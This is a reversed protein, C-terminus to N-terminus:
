PNIRGKNRIQHLPLWFSFTTEEPNSHLLEIDGGYRRIITRVILLGVGSGESGRRQIPQKFLLDRVEGPIEGGTNTIEVVVRRGRVQSNVKLVKYHLGKMARISNMTLLELAIALWKPDAHVTTNEDTLGHFDPILNDESKCWTPIELRLIVNLDVDESEDHYPLLDKSPIDKVTQAYSDIDDLWELAKPNDKIMQRLGYVTNRIAGAKQTIRHALSTFVIGMWAVAKTMTLEERQRANEIALAAQNAFLSLMEIENDSFVHPKDHHVFLIGIISDYIMMPLGVCAQVGQAKTRPNLDDPKSISCPKRKSLVKFTLGGPRPVVEKVYNEGLGYSASLIPAQSVSLEPADTDRLLFMNAGMAGSVQTISSVVRNFIELPPLNGHNIQIGLKYLETYLKVNQIAIAAQAGFTSLLERDSERFANFDTVSDLCLVGIVRGWAELPVLIASKEDKIDPHDKKVVRQDGPMDGILLPKRDAYVLGALGEGKGLQIADVIDDRFGQQAHIILKQKAEDWLFISGKQAAPVAKIAAQVAAQLVQKLDPSSTIQKGMEHLTALQQLKRERDIINGMARTMQKLFALLELFDKDLPGAEYEYILALGLPEGDERRLPIFVVKEGSNGYSVSYDDSFYAMVEPYNDKLSFEKINKPEAFGTQSFLKLHSRQPNLLYICAKTIDFAQCLSRALHESVEQLEHAAYISNIVMGLFSSRYQPNTKLSQGLYPIARDWRGAMGFVLAIRDPNFYRELYQEYIENRIFYVKQGGHDEVRVAGTLELEDIVIELDLELEGQPVQKKELIKLVNLLAKPSAEIARITELLPPHSEAETSLFWNSAQEIEQEDVQKNEKDSVLIMCYRCLRAMLYRDGGSARFLRRRGPPVIDIGQEGLIDDVLKEGATQSLDKIVTPRAFNFPSTPGLSLGAVSLSSATVVGFLDPADPGREMYIARLVRLLSKLPGIRVKELHDILLVLDRKSEKICDQCKQLFFKLSQEDKVKDPEPTQKIETEESFFSWFMAAFAALFDEDTTYHLKELDLLVCVMDGSAQLRTKLDNLLLSKQCYPPGLITCYYGERINRMIEAIADENPVYYQSNDIMWDGPKDNPKVDPMM